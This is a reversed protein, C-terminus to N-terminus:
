RVLIFFLFFDVLLIVLSANSNGNTECTITVSEKTPVASNIAMKASLIPVTLENIQEVVIGM